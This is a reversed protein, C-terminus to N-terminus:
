KKIYGRLNFFDGNSNAEKQNMIILFKGSDGIPVIAWGPNYYQAYDWDNSLSQKKIKMVKANSTKVAGVYVDYYPNIFNQWTKKGNTSSINKVSRLTDVFAKVFGSENKGSTTIIKNYISDDTGQRWITGHLTLLVKGTSLETLEAPDWQDLELDNQIIRDKQKGSGDLCYLCAKNTRDETIVTLILFGNDHLIMDNLQSPRDESISHVTKGVQKFNKDLFFTWIGPRFYGELFYGRFIIAYVAKGSIGKVKKVVPAIEFDLVTALDSDILEQSESEPIGNLSLQVGNLVYNRLENRNTWSFLYKKQKSNYVFRVKNVTESTHAIFVPEHVTFEGSNQWELLVSYIDIEQTNQDGYGTVVVIDNNQDNSAAAVFGNYNREVTFIDFGDNSLAPSALGSCIALVVILKRM